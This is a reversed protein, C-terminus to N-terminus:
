SKRYFIFEDLGPKVYDKIEGIKEYGLGRYFSQGKENTSTVLLFVGGKGTSVEELHKLLKAGVSLGRAHQDIVILKLYGSRSFAGKQDFLSLGVVKEADGETVSAVLFLYDKDGIAESFVRNMGERSAGYAQFIPESFYIDVCAPIDDNQASRIKLELPTKSL